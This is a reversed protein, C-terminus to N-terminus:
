PGAVKFVVLAAGSFDKLVGVFTLLGKKLKQKFGKAPPAPKVKDDLYGLINAVHWTGTEMDGALAQVETMTGDAKIAISKGSDSILKINGTTEDVEAFVSKGHALADDVFAGYKPDNLVTEVKSAARSITGTADELNASSQIAHAKIGDTTEQISRLNTRLQAGTQSAQSGMTDTTNALAVPVRDVDALIQPARKKAEESIEAFNGVGRGADTIIGPLQEVALFTAVSAHKSALLTPVAYYLLVTLFAMAYWPLIATGWTRFATAKARSTAAQEQELRQEALQEQDSGM